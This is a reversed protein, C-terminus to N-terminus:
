KQLGILTCSALVLLMGLGTIPTISEGFVSMGVLINAVPTVLMIISGQSVPLAKYSFTM